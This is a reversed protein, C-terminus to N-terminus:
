EQFVWILHQCSEEYVVRQNSNIKRPYDIILFPHLSIKYSTTLLMCMKIRRFLFFVYRPDLVTKLNSKFILKRHITTLM